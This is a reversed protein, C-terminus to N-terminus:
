ITKYIKSRIYWMGQLFCDALDDKKKHRSFFEEWVGFDSSIIGLCKVIGAKKRESYTTNVLSEEKLKNMSSVFDIQLTENKMLFYQSLMGQITKMRNAIPSIQNEILVLGIDNFSNNFLIDLKYQINRGITVIDLKNADVKDVIDFCTTEGHSSIIHILDMKKVSADYVICHKEAIERLRPVKQKKLFSIELDRSPRHFGVNKSHVLCYCTGNKTFRAERLCNEGNKERGSCVSTEKQALNIVDWVIVRNTTSDTMDPVDFVCVALNKIGVDISVIHMLYVIHIYLQQM